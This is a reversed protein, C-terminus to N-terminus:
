VVARPASATKDVASVQVFCVSAKNTGSKYWINAEKGDNTKEDIKKVTTVADSDGAVLLSLSELSLYCSNAPHDGGLAEGSELIKGIQEDEIRQGYVVDGANAIIETDINCTDEFKDIYTKATDDTDKIKYLEKFDKQLQLLADPTEMHVEVFIEKTAFKVNIIRNSDLLLARLANQGLKCGQEALVREVKPTGMKQKVGDEDYILYGKIDTDVVVLVAGPAPDIKSTGENLLSLVSAFFLSIMFVKVNM